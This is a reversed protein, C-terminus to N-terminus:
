DGDDHVSALLERAHDLPLRYAGLAELQKRLAARTRLGLEYSSVPVIIESLGGHGVGEWRSHVLICDDM